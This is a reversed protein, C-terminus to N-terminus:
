NFWETGGALRELLHRFDAVARRKLSQSKEQSNMVICCDKATFSPHHGRNAGTGQLASHFCGEPFAWGAVGSFQPRVRRSHHRIEPVYACIDM